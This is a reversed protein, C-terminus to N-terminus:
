IHLSYVVDVTRRILAFVVPSFDLAHEGGLVQLLLSCAAHVAALREAVGVAAREAVENRVLVAGNGLAFMGGLALVSALTLSTLLTAGGHNRRVRRRTDNMTKM